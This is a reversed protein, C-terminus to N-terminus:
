ESELPMGKGRGEPSLALTLPPRVIEGPQDGLHRSRGEGRGEGGPPSPSLRGYASM